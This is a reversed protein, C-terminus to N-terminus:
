VAFSSIQSFLPLKKIEPLPPPLPLPLHGFQLRTWAPLSLKSYELIQCKRKNCPSTGQKVTTGSSLLSLLSTHLYQLMLSFQKTFQLRIRTIKRTVVLEM